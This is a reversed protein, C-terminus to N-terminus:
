RRAKLTNKHVDPQVSRRLMTFTFLDAEAVRVSRGLRHIPLEGAAIWRWVTKKSLGLQMAVQNVTLLV